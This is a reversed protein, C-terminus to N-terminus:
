PLERLLALDRVFDRYAQERAAADPLRLLWSPHVTAFAPTGDPLVQRRGRQELLAFGPGFIARAATAGLCVVLEPRIRALEAELWPRCAAQEDLDARKHLRRKGRATMAVEFKFHKVANTLYLQARDVGADALARDLLRGAPGVFPQGALDEQDGPQEGIVVIRADDPGAGFVVQTAPQWLACRRCDRAAARLEALTGSPADTAAHRLVPAAVRKRPVTPAAEVMEHMRPRADRILTQIVAAEPLNKWYKVPMESKMAAIKLRAPNFINSYYTRWLDELADDGAADRKNAGAGFELREGNWHASRYPTLISWHMGAFRRVFFPAVRELIYHEPEFWSLYVPAGGAEAPRERFRVFAKMKHSDRRVSKELVLARAMDDDTIRHVLDREGHALRWLIRYLLAHRQPDSHALVAGALGLFERPVAPSRGAPSPAPSPTESAPADFLSSEGAFAWGVQEPAIGEALLRRAHGRWEDLDVRDQMTVIRM